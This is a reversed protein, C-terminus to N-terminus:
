AAGPSAGYPISGGAGCRVGNMSGAAATARPILKQGGDCMVHVVVGVIWWPYLM